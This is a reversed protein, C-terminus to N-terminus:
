VRLAQMCLQGVPLPCCSGEPCSQAISPYPPAHIYRTYPATPCTRVAHSDLPGVSLPSHAAVYPSPCAFPPMSSAKPVPLNACMPTGIGIPTGPPPPFFNARIKKRVGGGHTGGSCFALVGHLFNKESPPLKKSHAVQVQMSGESQWMPLPAALRAVSATGWEAILTPSAHLRTVVLTQHGHPLGPTFNRYAIHVTPHEVQKNTQKM